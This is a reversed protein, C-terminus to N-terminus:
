YLILLEGDEDSIVTEDDIFGEVSIYISQDESQDDSCARITEFDSTEERSPKM